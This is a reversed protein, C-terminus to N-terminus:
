EALQTKSSDRDDFELFFEFKKVKSIQFNM